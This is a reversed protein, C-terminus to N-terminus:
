LEQSQLLCFLSKLGVELAWKMGMLLWSVKAQISVIFFESSVSAVSEMDSYLFDKREPSVSTEKEKDSM